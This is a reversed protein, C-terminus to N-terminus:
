EDPEEIICGGLVLRALERVAPDPDEAAVRELVNVADAEARLGMIAKKRMASDLDGEAVSILGRVTRSDKGEWNALICCAMYREDGYGHELKQLWFAQSDQDLRGRRVRMVISLALIVAAISLVTYVFAREKPSLSNAM